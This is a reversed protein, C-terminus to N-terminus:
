SQPLATAALLAPDPPDYASEAYGRARDSTMWHERFARRRSMRAAPTNEQSAGLGGSPRPPSPPPLTQQETVADHRPIRAAAGSCDTCARRATSGDPVQQLQTLVVGCLATKGRRGTHTSRAM